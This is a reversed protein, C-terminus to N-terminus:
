PSVHVGFFDVFLLHQLPHASLPIRKWQHKPHFNTVAVISSVILTGESMFILIFNSFKRLGCVFDAGVLIFTQLFHHISHFEQSFYLYSM